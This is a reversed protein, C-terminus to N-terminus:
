KKAYANKGTKYRAGHLPTILFAQRALSAQRSFIFKVPSPCPVRLTETRRQSLKKCIAVVIANFSLRQRMHPLEPFSKRHTLGLINFHTITTELTFNEILTYRLLDAWHRYVMVPYPTMDKIQPIAKLHPLVITM